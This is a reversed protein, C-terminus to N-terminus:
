RGGEKSCTKRMECSGSSSLKQHIFLSCVPEERLFFYSVFALHSSSNIHIHLFHLDDDHLSHWFIFPSFSWQAIFRMTLLINKFHFFLCYIFSHTWHSMLILKGVYGNLTICVNVKVDFFFVVFQLFEFSIWVWNNM